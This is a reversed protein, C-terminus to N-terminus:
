EPVDGLFYRAERIAWHLEPFSFGPYEVVVGEAQNLRGMLNDYGLVLGNQDHDAHMRAANLNSLTAELVDVTEVRAPQSNPDFELIKPM